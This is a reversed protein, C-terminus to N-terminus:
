KKASKKRTGRKPLDQTNAEAGGDASPVSKKYRGAIAALNVFGVGKLARVNMEGEDARFRFSFTDDENPIAENAKARVAIKTIIGFLISDKTVSYDAELRDAGDTWTLKDPTITLETRGARSPTDIKLWTGIPSNTQQKTKEDPSDIGAVGVFAVVSALILNRM